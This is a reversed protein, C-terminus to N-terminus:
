CGSFAHVIHKTTGTYVYCDLIDVVSFQCCQLLFVPVIPVHVSIPLRKITLPFISDSHNLSAASDIPSHVSFRSLQTCNWSLATACGFVFYIRRIRSDIPDDSSSEDSDEGDLEVDAQTPLPLDGVNDGSQPLPRYSKDPSSSHHQRSSSM